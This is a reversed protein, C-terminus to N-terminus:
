VRSCVAHAIRQASREYRDRVARCLTMELVQPKLPHGARRRLELLAQLIVLRRARLVDLIGDRLM